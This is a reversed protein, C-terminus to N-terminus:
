MYERTVIVRHIGTMLASLNSSTDDYELSSRIGDFIDIDNRLHSCLINVVLLVDHCKVSCVSFHVLENFLESSFFFARTNFIVVLFVNVTDLISRSFSSSDTESNM